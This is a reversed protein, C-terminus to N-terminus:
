VKIEDAQGFMKDSIDGAIVSVLFKNLINQALPVTKM